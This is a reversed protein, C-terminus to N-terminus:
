PWNKGSKEKTRLNFANRGVKEQLHLQGENDWSYKRYGRWSKKSFDRGLEPTVWPQNKFFCQVKKTPLTRLVFNLTIQSVAPWFTRGIHDLFHRRLHMGKPQSPQKGDYTHLCFCFSSTTIQADLSSSPQFVTHMRQTQMSCILHKPM